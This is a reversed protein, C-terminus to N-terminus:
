SSHAPLLHCFAVSQVAFLQSLNKLLFNLKHLLFMSLLHSRALFLSYFDRLNM